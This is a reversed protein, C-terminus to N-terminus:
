NVKYTFNNKENSIFMPINGWENILSSKYIEVFLEQIRLNAIIVCIEYIREIDSIEDESLNSYDFDNHHHEIENFEKIDYEPTYDLNTGMWEPNDDVMAQYSSMEKFSFLSFNFGYTECYYVAPKVEKNLSFLNKIFGQNKKLVKRTSKDFNDLFHKSDSIRKDNLLDKGIITHFKTESFKMLEEEALKIADDLKKADLLANINEELNQKM